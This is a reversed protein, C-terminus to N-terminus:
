FEPVNSKAAINRLPLDSISESSSLIQRVREQLVAPVFPKRLFNRSSVQVGYYRCVEAGVHGSIFLVRIGPQKAAIAIALDCGNGGPLSIDAILLDLFDSASEHVALAEPINTATRVIYGESELAERIANLDADEDDVVLINAYGNTM